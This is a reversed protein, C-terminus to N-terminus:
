SDQQLGATSLSIKGICFCSGCPEPRMYCATHQYCKSAASAAVSDSAWRPGRSAICHRQSVSPVALTGKRKSRSYETTSSSTTHAMQYGEALKINNFDLNTCYPTSHKLTIPVAGGVRESKLVQVSAARHSYLHTRERTRGSAFLDRVVIM